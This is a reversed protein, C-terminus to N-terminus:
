DIQVLFTKRSDGGQIEFDLRTRTKRHAVLAPGGLPPRVDVRCFKPMANSVGPNRGMTAFVAADLVAAGNGQITGRFLAHRQPGLSGDSSMESILNGSIDTLLLLSPSIEAGDRLEAYHVLCRCTIRELSDPNYSITLVSISGIADLEIAGGGAVVARGSGADTRDGTQAVLRSPKLREVGFSFAILVFFGLCVGMRWDTTLIAVFGAFASSAM